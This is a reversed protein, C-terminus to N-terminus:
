FKLCIVLEVSYVLGFNNSSDDDIIVMWTGVFNNGVLISLVEELFYVGSFLLFGNTIPLRGDLFVTIDYDDGLGGNDSFLDITVNSWLFFLSLDLNNNYIHEVWFVVAVREIIGATTAM